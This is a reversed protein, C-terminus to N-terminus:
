ARTEAQRFWNGRPDSLKGIIVVPEHEYYTGWRNKADALRAETALTVPFGAFGIRALLARIRNTGTFCVWTFGQSQLFPVLDRFFDAVIDRDDVVFQGVEAISGRVATEGSSLHIVTEVPLDLYSELFLHEEAASRVGIVGSAGTAHEYVALDPMFGEICANFHHGFGSRVRAELSNRMPSGREAVFFSNRACPLRLATAANTLDTQM